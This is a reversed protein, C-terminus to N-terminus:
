TIYVNNELSEKKKDIDVKQVKSQKNIKEFINSFARFKSDDRKKIKKETASNHDLKQIIAENSLLESILDKDKLEISKYNDSLLLLENTSVKRETTKEKSDSNFLNLINEGYNYRYSQPRMSMNKMNRQSIQSSRHDISKESVSNQLNDIGCTEEFKKLRKTLHNITEQNKSLFKDKETKYESFNLQFNDLTKELNSIGNKLNSNEARLIIIENEKINMEMFESSCFKAEYNDLKTQLKEM